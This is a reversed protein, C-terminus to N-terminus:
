GLGFVLGRRPHSRWFIRFPGLFRNICPVHPALVALFGPMRSSRFHNGAASSDGIHCVLGLMCAALYSPTGPRAKPEGALRRQVESAAM